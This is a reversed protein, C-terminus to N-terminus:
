GFDVWHKRTIHAKYKEAADTYRYVNDVCFSGGNLDDGREEAIHYVTSLILGTIKNFASKLADFTINVAEINEEDAEIDEEQCDACCFSEFNSEAKSLAAMFLAHEAPCIQKVFSEEVCEEYCCYHSMSM